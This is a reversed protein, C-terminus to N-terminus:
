FYQLILYKLTTPHLLYYPKLVLTNELVATKKKFYQLFPDLGRKELASFHPFNFYQKAFCKFVKTKFFLSTGFPLDGEIV